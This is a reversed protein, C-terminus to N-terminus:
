PLAIHTATMYYTRMYEDSWYSLGGYLSVTQGVHTALSFGPQSAVYLLPQGQRNELVYMDQGNKKFATKRLVGWVSWQPPSGPPLPNSGPPTNYMTTTSNQPKAAGPQWQPTASTPQG